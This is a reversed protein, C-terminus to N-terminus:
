YQKTPGILSKAHTNVCNFKSPIKKWTVVAAAASEMFSGDGKEVVVRRIQNAFMFEVRFARYMYYLSMSKNVFKVINM